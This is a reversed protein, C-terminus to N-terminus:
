VSEDRKDLGWKRRNAARLADVEAVARAAKSGEIPGHANEYRRATGAVVNEAWAQGDGGVRLRYAANRRDTKERESADIHYRAHKWLEACRTSCTTGPRTRPGWCVRCVQGAEMARQPAAKVERAKQRAERAKARMTAELRRQKVRGILEPDTANIWQRVRERSVGFQAGVQALTVNGRSYLRAARQANSLRSAM